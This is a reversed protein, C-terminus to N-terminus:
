PVLHSSDDTGYGEQVPASIAVHYPVSFGRNSKLIVRLLESQLYAEELIADETALKHAWRSSRRHRLIAMGAKGSYM